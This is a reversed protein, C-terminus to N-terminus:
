EVFRASFNRNTENRNKTRESKWHNLANRKKEREGGELFMSMGNNDNGSEFADLEEVSLM